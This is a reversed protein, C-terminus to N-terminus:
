FLKKLDSYGFLWACIAIGFGVWAPELYSIRREWSLGLPGPYFLLQRGTTLWEIAGLVVWRTRPLCM